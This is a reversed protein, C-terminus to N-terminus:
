EGYFGLEYAADYLAVTNEAPVGAQVNHVNNFVYGGGPKWTGLHGRVQERAEAPTASPLVHQKHIGTQNGGLDIPVRDPEEHNLATLLRERSTM